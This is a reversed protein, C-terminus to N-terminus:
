NLENLVIETISIKDFKKDLNLEEYNAIDIFQGNSEEIIITEYYQQTKFIAKIKSDFFGKLNESAKVIFYNEYTDVRNYVMEEIETLVEMLRKTISYNNTVDFTDTYLEELTQDTLNIEMKLVGSKKNKLVCNLEFGFERIQLNLQEIATEIYKKM